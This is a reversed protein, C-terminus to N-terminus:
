RGGAVRITAGTVYGADASLLWAVAGTVEAPEGPRGLPITSALKDPRDPDLHFDTRIIGPEVCNVRVGLPALEKSLGLSLASVGAKAAAYHVYTHPSGLTAAASGIFVISGRTKELHAISARATLVAGLLNVDIDRRLDDPDLERLSGVARVAGASAVVGMLPGMAAATDFFAALSTADTVDVPAISAVEGRDIIDAAVSRAAEQDSRYGILVAHGDAALRRAVAAGIGRSGGTIATVQEEYDM